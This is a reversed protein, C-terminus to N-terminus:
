FNLIAKEQRNKFVADIKKNDFWKYKVNFRIIIEFMFNNIRKFKNDIGM